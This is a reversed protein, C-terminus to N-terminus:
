SDDSVVNLYGRPTISTDIGRKGVHFARLTLATGDYKQCMFGLTEAMSFELTSAQYVQVLLVILRTTRLVRAASAYETDSASSSACHSRDTRASIHGETGHERGREGLVTSTSEKHRCITVSESETLRQWATLDSVFSSSRVLPESNHRRRQSSNKTPCLSCCNGNTVVAVISASAKVFAKTWQGESSMAIFARRWTNTVESELVPKLVVSGGEECATGVKLTAMPDKLRDTTVQSLEEKPYLRYQLM